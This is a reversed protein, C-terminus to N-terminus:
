CIIWSVKEKSIKDIEEEMNMIYSAGYDISKKNSIGYRIDQGKRNDVYFINNYFNDDNKISNYIMKAIDINKFEQGSSINYIDNKVSSNISLNYIVNCTDEVHTWTRVYSGNGHIIIKKFDSLRSISKPIFKEPYQRFGYNNSPRFILYDLDYTRNWSTVLHEASAKTASYPNSPNLRDTEVFFGDEIDGYVEDTSIHVFIPRDYKPKNRVLELLNQTGFINSEIFKQSGDISNDVHSEAAFHFIYDYNDIYDIENINKQIFSYKNNIKLFKKEFFLDSCYNIKDINVVFFDNDLLKKIFHKGIFGLGGTVLVKM